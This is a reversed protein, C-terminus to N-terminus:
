LSSRYKIEERKVHILRIGDRTPILEVRQDKALIANIADVDQPTLRKAKDIACDQQKSM